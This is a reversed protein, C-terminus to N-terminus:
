PRPSSVRGWVGYLVCSLLVFVPLPSVGAAIYEGFQGGMRSVVTLLPLQFGGIFVHLMPDLLGLGREVDRYMALCWAEIVAAASIFYLVPRPLRALAIAAPIFLFPFIASLYRIGTNFQLRTYHVGSFFLVVCLSIGLLTALELPQISKRRYLFPAALAFLFLPGSTFLGFRYDFLLLLFLDLQPVTFGQYGKEIWQVPPMWQQGPYLFNGFSQWQYFWLLLVPGLTGAVYFVGRRIAEPWAGTNRLGAAVVYLFLGLLIVVGSYDFLLALGGGLGALFTRWETSLRISRSPNWAFFFGFFALHGLMLNHSLYGTRFFVPTGFAYLLAFLLAKRDSGLIRRLAFFMVVAALASIPAMCFAQMIIAALGFKVDYGRRWSERYFEQARPWPSNYLPPEAIGARSQNVRAVLRDVVPKFVAYPVAAFMSAGPNAGIHWGYGPKDFLDDHMNAYDDVRFSLHDAISLALFIERVTNTAVHVAFVLWCTVFLRVAIEKPSWRLRQDPPMPTGTVHEINPENLLM